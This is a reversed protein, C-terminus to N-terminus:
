VRHHHVPTYLMKNVCNWIWLKFPIIILHVFTGLCNFVGNLRLGQDNYLTLASDICVYRSNHFFEWRFLIYKVPYQSSLLPRALVWNSKPSINKKDFLNVQKTEPVSDM